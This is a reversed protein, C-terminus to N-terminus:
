PWCVMCTWAPRPHVCMKPPSFETSTSISVPLTLVDHGVCCVPGPRAHHGSCQETPFIKHPPLAYSQSCMVSAERGAPSTRLCTCWGPPAARPRPAPSPAPPPPHPAAAARPRARSAPRTPPERPASRPSSSCIKFGLVTHAEEHMRGHASWAGMRAGHSSAPAARTCDQHTARCPRGSWALRARAAVRRRCGIGACMRAFFQPDQASVNGLHCTAEGFNNGGVAGQVGGQEVWGGM